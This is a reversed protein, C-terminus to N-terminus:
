FVSAFQTEGDRAARLSCIWSWACLGARCPSLEQLVPVGEAPREWTGGGASAAAIHQQPSM